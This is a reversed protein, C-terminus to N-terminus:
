SFGMIHSSFAACSFWVFVFLTTSYDSVETSLDIICLPWHQVYIWFVLQGTVISTSSARTKKGENYGM